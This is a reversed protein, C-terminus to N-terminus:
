EVKQRKALALNAKLTEGYETWRYQPACIDVGGVSGSSSLLLVQRSSWLLMSPEVSWDKQVEREVTEGLRLFLLHLRLLCRRSCMFSAPRRLCCAGKMGASQDKSDGSRVPIADPGEGGVVRSGPRLEPPDPM